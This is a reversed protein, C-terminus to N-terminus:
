YRQHTPRLNIESIDVGQPAGLAYIVSDAVDKSSLCPYKAYNAAAIEASGTFRVGFETKVFGQVVFFSM